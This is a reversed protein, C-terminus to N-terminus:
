YENSSLLFAFIPIHHNKVSCINKDVANHFNINKIHTTNNYKRNFLHLIFLM